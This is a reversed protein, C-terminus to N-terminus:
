ELHAQFFSVIRRRADEASPGHYGIGVVKLMKFLVSPPNNLFSHGADPYEKVDHEVGLVTLVRELQDAVGRTWRDKAGYSGVIPCAGALFQESDKPLAGGYNVSSASFGRGPALLLAFAGGMCFGIVGIRGTCGEQQTLWTRVAEIDDYVKGRRVLVDRAISRLCAIRGGSYFLDPAAALFGESALWETQNRLDTSMGGVDHIVVVGPWPGSIRPTAVYAPLEGFATPIKVDAM